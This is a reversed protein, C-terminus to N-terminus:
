DSSIKGAGPADKPPDSKEDDGDASIEPFFENMEATAAVTLQYISRKGIDDLWEDLNLLKLKDAEDKVSLYALHWETSSRLQGIAVQGFVSDGTAAEYDKITRHTIHIIWDRGKADTFKAM